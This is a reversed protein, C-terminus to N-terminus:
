SAVPVLAALSSEGRDTLRDEVDVYDAGAPLGVATALSGPTDPEAEDPDIGLEIALRRVGHERNREAVRIVRPTRPEDGELPLFVLDGEVCSLQQLVGRVSGLLPQKTSWSFRVVV